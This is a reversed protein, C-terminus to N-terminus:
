GAWGLECAKKKPEPLNSEQPKKLISMRGQNETVKGLGEKWGGAAGRKGPPTRWRGRRWGGPPWSGPSNGPIITTPATSPQTCGGVPRPSLGMQGLFKDIGGCLFIGGCLSLSWGAARSLTPAHDTFFPKPDFTTGTTCPENSPSYIARDFFFGPGCMLPIFM